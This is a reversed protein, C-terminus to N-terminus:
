LVAPAFKSTLGGFDGSGSQDTRIWDGELSRQRSVPPQPTQAVSQITGLVSMGIVAVSALLFRM